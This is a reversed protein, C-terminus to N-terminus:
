DEWDSIQRKLSLVTNEIEKRCLDAARKLIEKRMQFIAQKVHKMRYKARESSDCMSGRKTYTDTFDTANSLVCLDDMLERITSM